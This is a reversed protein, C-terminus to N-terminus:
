GGPFRKFREALAPGPRRIKLWDATRSGALYRSDLRKAVIGELGLRLAQAFLAEGEGDQADVVKIGPLERLATLHPRRDVLPLDVLRRGGAMLVDFVCFVVAQAAFTLPGHVRRRLGEFDSRGDADFVCVEGDLVLGPGALPRLAAVIEPFWLTADACNRTKLKVQGSRVGALLRYGDHKVEFSWDPDDFADHVEEFLMPEFADVPHGGPRMRQRADPRTIARIPAPVRALSSSIFKEQVTM